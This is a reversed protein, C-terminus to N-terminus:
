CYLHLVAFLCLLINIILCMAQRNRVILLKLRSKYFLAWRISILIPYIILQYTDIYVRYLIWNLPELALVCKLKSIRVAIAILLIIKHLIVDNVRNFDVSGESSCKAEMKLISYASCSILTIAHPRVHSRVIRKSLTRVVENLFACILAKQRVTTNFTSNQNYLFL